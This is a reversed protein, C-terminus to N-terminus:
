AEAEVLRLGQQAGPGGPTTGEPCAQQKLFDCCKPYM